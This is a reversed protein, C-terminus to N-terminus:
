LTIDVISGKIPKALKPKPEVVTDPKKTSTDAPVIRRARPETIGGKKLEEIRDNLIFMQRQYVTALAEARLTARRLFDFVAILNKLDGAEFYQKILDHNIGPHRSLDDLQAREEDTM